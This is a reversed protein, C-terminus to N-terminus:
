LLHFNVEILVPKRVPKGDVTGPQFRWQRVAEIAKEDLGLGLGRQVRVNEVLGQENVEGVLVVVGQLRAKRAEESFEPEVRYILVPDRRSRISGRGGIGGEGPSGPGKRDGVGGNEGNGIGGNRGPGDSPPGIVGDPLGLQSAPASRLQGMLAPEVPLAPMETPRETTPPFFPKPEMHPLEGKSAPLEMRGGGGSEGGGKNAEPLHWTLKTASWQLNPQRTNLPTEQIAALHILAFVVSAHLLLSFVPGRIRM